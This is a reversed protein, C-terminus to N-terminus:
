ASDLILISASKESAFAAHTVVQDASGVGELELTTEENTRNNNQWFMRLMGGETVTLLATRAQLPHSPGETQVVSSKYHYTGNANKIAPGFMVNYSQRNAAPQTGAVPAAVPLWYCGAISQTPDLMDPDWKRVLFPGTLTISFILIAVRGAADFIALEPNNTAAWELHVLPDEM